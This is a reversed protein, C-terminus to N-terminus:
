ARSCLSVSPLVASASEACTVPLWAGDDASPRQDLSM